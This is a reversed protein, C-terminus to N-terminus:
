ENIQELYDVYAPFHVALYEEGGQNVLRICKGNKPIKEKDSDPVKIEAQQGIINLRLISPFDDKFKLYAGTDSYNHVECEYNSGEIIVNAQIKDEIREARRRENEAM